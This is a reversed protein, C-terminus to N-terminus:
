VHAHGGSTNAAAIAALCRKCTVAEDRITWLERSLNLARPKKACLPSVHGNKSWLHAKHYVKSDHYPDDKSM